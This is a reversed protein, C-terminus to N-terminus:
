SKTSTAAKPQEPKEITFLKKSVERCQSRFYYKEYSFSILCVTVSIPLYALATVVDLSVWKAVAALLFVVNLLVAIECGALVGNVIQYKISLYAISKLRSPNKELYEYQECAEIEKDLSALEKKATGKLKAVWCNSGIIWERFLLGVSGAVFSFAAVLAISALAETPISQSMPNIWAPFVLYLPTLLLVFLGNVFMFVLVPAPVDKLLSESM